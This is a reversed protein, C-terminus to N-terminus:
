SHGDESVEADWQINNIDGAVLWEMTVGLAFALRAISRIFTNERNKIRYLSRVSEGSERCVDTLRYHALDRNRRISHLVEDTRRSVDALFKDQRDVIAQAREVLEM